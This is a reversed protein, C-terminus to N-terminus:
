MRQSRKTSLTSHRRRVSQVGPPRYWEVRASRLVNFWPRTNISQCGGSALQPASTLIKSRFNVGHHWVLTWRGGPVSLCSGRPNGCWTRHTSMPLPAEATIHLAQKNATIKRSDPRDLPPSYDRGVKSGVLMLGVAFGWDRLNDRRNSLSLVVRSAARCGTVGQPQCSGTEAASLSCAARQAVSQIVSM